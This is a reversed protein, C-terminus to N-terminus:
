VYLTMGTHGLTVLGKVPCPTRVGRYQYKTGKGTQTNSWQKTSVRDKREQAKVNTGLAAHTSSHSETYTHETREPTGSTPERPETPHSSRVKPPVLQGVACGSSERGNRGATHSPKLEGCGGGLSVWM